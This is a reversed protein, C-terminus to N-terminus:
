GLGALRCAAWRGGPIWMEVLWAGGNEPSDGWGCEGKQKAPQVCVCRQTKAQNLKRQTATGCFFFFLARGLKPFPGLAHTSQNIGQVGGFGCGPLAQGLCNIRKRLKRFRLRRRILGLCCCGGVGGGVVASSIKGAVAGFRQIVLLFLFAIVVPLRGLGRQACRRRDRGRCNDRSRGDNIGTQALAWM